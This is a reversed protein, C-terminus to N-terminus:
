GPVWSREIRQRRSQTGAGSIAFGDELPTPSRSTVLKATYINVVAPSARRVADAYSVM